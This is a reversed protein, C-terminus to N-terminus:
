KKNKLKRKLESTHKVEISIKGRDSDRKKLESIQLLLQAKTLKVEPVLKKYEEVKPNLNFIVNRSTVKNRLLEIQKQEDTLLNFMKDIRRQDKPKLKM